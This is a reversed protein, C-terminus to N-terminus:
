GESEQLPELDELLDNRYSNAEKHTRFVISSIHLKETNDELTYVSDIFYKGVSVQYDIKGVYVTKM